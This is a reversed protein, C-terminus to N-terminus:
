DRFSDDTHPGVGHGLGLQGPADDDKSSGSPRAMRVLFCADPISAADNDWLGSWVSPADAAKTIGINARSFLTVIHQSPGYDLDKALLLSLVPYALPAM